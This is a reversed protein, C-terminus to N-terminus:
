EAVVAEAVKWGVIRVFFGRGNEGELDFTYVLEFDAHGQSAVGEIYCGVTPSLGRTIEQVSSLGAHCGLLAEAISPWLRSYRAKIQEFTARQMATPGSEDAWLHVAFESTGSPGHEFPVLGDWADGSYEIEGFAPDNVAM